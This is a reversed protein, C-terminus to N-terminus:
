LVPRLAELVLAVFVPLILNDLGRSSNNELITVALPLWIIVPWTSSPFGAKDVVLLASVIAVSVLWFTVTGLTTKYHGFFGNRRPKGWRSGVVAALGDALSLHLIAAAFVWESKTIVAALGIGLAFLAEGWSRRRVAYIARFVLFRKTLLVVILFALSLFQITQWSLFFPWFAVFTGVMMHVFKRAREGQLRKTQWLVESLLLILLVILIALFPRTM